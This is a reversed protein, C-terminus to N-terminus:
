LMIAETQKMPTQRNNTLNFANKILQRPRSALSKNPTRVQRDPEKKNLIRDRM